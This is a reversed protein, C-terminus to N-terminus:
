KFVGILKNMDDALALPKAKYLNLTGKIKSIYNSTETIKKWKDNKLRSPGANYAALLKDVTDTKYKSKLWSLYKLGASVNKKPLLREDKQTTVTLGMDRATSPMLQMLGLAGVSSKADPRFRSEQKIIAVALPVPINNERCLKTFAVANDARRESRNVDPPILMESPLIAQPILSAGPLQAPGSPLQQPAPQPQPQQQEGMGVPSQPVKVPMQISGPAVDTVKPDPTTATLQQTPAALGTEAPKRDIQTIDSIARGIPEAVNRSRPTQIQPQAGTAPPTQLSVPGPVPREDPLGFLIKLAEDPGVIGVLNLIEELQEPHESILKRLIVDAGYKEIGARIEAIEEPTM